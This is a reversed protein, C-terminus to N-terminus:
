RGNGTMLIKKGVRDKHELITVRAGNQAAFVAAVLGSAGGGAVVVREAMVIMREM